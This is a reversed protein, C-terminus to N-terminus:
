VTCIEVKCENLDFDMIHNRHDTIWLMSDKVCYKLEMVEYNGILKDTKKDIVKAKLDLKLEDM